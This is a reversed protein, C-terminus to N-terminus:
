RTAEFIEIEAPRAGDAPAAVYLRSDSAVWLGTRAGARTKVQALLSLATGAHAFVDVRGEGGVVYLRKRESDYFMDDTDGVTALTRVLRGTQREVIGVAAPRRCGVFVPEAGDSLAMPYNSRCGSMPWRGLVTGSKRDAAVVQDRSPLNALLLTGTALQFSEPHGEIAIRRAVSKSAPDVVFIGGVAAVFVSRADRDYRVNDADDGVRVSWLRQNTDASLMQLTGDGGNAVAVLSSDLLVAIGQPETFGPVSEVRSRTRTDLVEVTDNGLAAVFLRQRATDFALHDIRGKVGPLGITGVLRLPPAQQEEGRAALLALGGLLCWAWTMLPLTVGRTM